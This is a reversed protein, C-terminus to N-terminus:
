GCVRQWFDSQFAPDIYRRFQDINPYGSQFMQASMRGDKAPYLRGKAERVIADLRGLLALTSKGRNTFDLALTSGEM